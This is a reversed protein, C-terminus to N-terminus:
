GAWRLPDVGSARGHPPSLSRPAGLWDAAGCACAGCRARPRGAARQYGRPWLARGGRCAYRGSNDVAGASRGGTHRSRHSQRRRPSERRSLLAHLLRESEAMDRAFLAGGGLFTLAEVAALDDGRQEALVLAEELMARSREFAQRHMLFVGAYFLGRTRVGPDGQPAKALAEELWNAAEAHYGRMLWFYGLAGALRLAAERETAEDQDLLWRLAMRLNDHERELRLCQARQDRGRLHPEAQQALSLFYHAHARHAAEFAGRAVLQEEAYERVTELMTYSPEPTDEEDSDGGTGDHRLPLVLSKEALSALVELASEEGVQGDTGNAVAAIAGLSVRGTFVGLCSFLRRENDNLLEFSWGVTAELSQQRV